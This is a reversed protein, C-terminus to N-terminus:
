RNKMTSPASRTHKVHGKGRSKAKGAISTEEGVWYTTCLPMGTTRSDGAFMIDRGDLGKCFMEESWPHLDCTDPAWRYYLEKRERVTQNKACAGLVEGVSPYPPINPVLGTHVWRGLTHQTGKCPRSTLNRYGGVLPPRRPGSYSFSTKREIGKLRQTPCLPSDIKQQRMKHMLMVATTTCSLAVIVSVLCICLFIKM